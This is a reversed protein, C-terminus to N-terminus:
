SIQAEVVHVDVDKAIHVVAQKVARHDARVVLGTQHKGGLLAAMARPDWSRSGGAARVSKEFDPSLGLEDPALAFRQDGHALVVDDDARPALTTRLKGAAAGPGMHGVDVGGITANAPMLAGTALWGAVYILGALLLALLLSRRGRLRKKM